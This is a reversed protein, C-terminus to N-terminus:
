KAGCHDVWNKISVVAQAIAPPDTDVKQQDADAAIRQSYGVHKSRIHAIHRKAKHQYPHSHAALSHTPPRQALQPGRGPMRQSFSSSMPQARPATKSSIGAATM